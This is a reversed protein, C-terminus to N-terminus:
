LPLMLSKVKAQLRMKKQPKITIECKVLRHDTLCSDSGIIARAKKVEKRDRSKMIIFDIQHWHKSRPHQWTGKYRNKLPFLKNTILLNHDTCKTLLLQGSQNIKGIGNHGIPSWTEHDPGVRANSNGLILLRDRKPTNALVKDLAAYFTEKVTDNADLTPAYACVLTLHDDNQLALRATMLRESLGIPFEKLHKLVSTKITLGVGHICKDHHSLGKWYFTYGSGIEGIKGEAPLRTEQLAVIDIDLRRLEHGVLADMLTRVNWTAFKMLHTPNSCLPHTNGPRKLKTAAALSPPVEAEGVATSKGPSQLNTSVALNPAYISAVCFVSGCLGFRGDFECVVSRCELVSRYLVVVGRSHNTGFSGACLYGFRSFWSLLDNNSVNHTEQLCVVM